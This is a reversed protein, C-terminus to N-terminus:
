SLGKVGVASGGDSDIARCPGLITMLVISRRLGAPNRLGAIPLRRRALSIPTEPAAARALATGESTAAKPLAHRAMQIPRSGASARAVQHIESEPKAVVPQGESAPRDASQGPQRQQRVSRLLQQVLPLLVFLALLVVLETSMTM